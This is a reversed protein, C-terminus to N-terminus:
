SFMHDDVPLFVLSLTPNEGCQHCQCMSQSLPGLILYIPLFPYFNLTQILKLSPTRRIHMSLTHIQLQGIFFTAENFSYIYYNYTLLQTNVKALSNLCFLAHASLNQHTLHMFGFPSHMPCADFNFRLHMIKDLNELM